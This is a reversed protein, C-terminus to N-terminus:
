WAKTLWFIPSWTFNQNKPGTLPVEIGTTFYYNNAL